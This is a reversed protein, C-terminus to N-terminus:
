ALEHPVEFWDVASLYGAGVRNLEDAGAASSGAIGVGITDLVFVKARAVADASLDEFRTELAHRAFRESAVPAVPANM